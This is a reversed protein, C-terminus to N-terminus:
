LLPEGNLPKEKHPRQQLLDDNVSPPVFSQKAPRKRLLKHCGDIECFCGALDDFDDYCQYSDHSVTKGDDVSVMVMAVIM